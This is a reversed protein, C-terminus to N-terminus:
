ITTTVSVAAISLNCVSKRGPEVVIIFIIHDAKLEKSIWGYFNEQVFFPGQILPM